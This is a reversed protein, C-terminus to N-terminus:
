DKSDPIHAASLLSFPLCPPLTLIPRHTHRWKFIQEKIEWSHYPKCLLFPLSTSLSAVGTIRCSPDPHQNSVMLLGSLLFQTGQHSPDDPRYCFPIRTLSAPTRAPHSLLPKSLLTVICAICKYRLM